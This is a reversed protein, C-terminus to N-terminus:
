LLFERSKKEKIQKPFFCLCCIKLKRLRIFPDLIALALM